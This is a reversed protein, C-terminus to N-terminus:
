TKVRGRLFVILLIIGILVILVGLGVLLWIWTHSSSTPAPPGHWGMPVSVCPTANTMFDCTFVIGAGLVPAPITNTQYYVTLSQTTTGDWTIYTYENVKNNGSCLRVPAGNNITYIPEENSTGCYDGSTVYTYLILTDSGLQYTRPTLTASSPPVLCIQTFGNTISTLASCAGTTYTVIPGTPSYVQGGGYVIFGNAPSVVGNWVVALYSSLQGAMNPCLRTNIGNYSAVAYAGPSPGPVCPTNDLWYLTLLQGGPQYTVSYYAM